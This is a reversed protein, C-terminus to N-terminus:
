CLGWQGPGTPAEPYEPLTLLGQFPPGTPPATWDPFRTLLERCGQTSPMGETGGEDEM